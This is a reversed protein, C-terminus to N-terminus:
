RPADAPVKVPLGALALVLLLLRLALALPVSVRARVALPAQLVLARVVQPYLMHAVVAKVHEVEKALALLLLERMAAVQRAQEALLVLAEPVEPAVLDERAAALHVAVPAAALHVAERGERAAAQFRMRRLLVLRRAQLLVM